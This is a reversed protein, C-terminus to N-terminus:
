RISHAKFEIQVWSKPYCSQKKMFKCSIMFSRLVFLSFNIVRASKKCSSSESKLSSMSLDKTVWSVMSYSLAHIREPCIWRLSFDYCLRRRMGILGAEPMKKTLNYVSVGEGGSIRAGILIDENLHKSRTTYNIM